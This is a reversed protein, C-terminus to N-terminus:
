STYSHVGNSPQTLECYRYFTIDIFTEDSYYNVGDSSNYNYIWVLHELNYIIYEILINLKQNYHVVRGSSYSYRDQGSSNTIICNHMSQMWWEHLSYFTKSSWVQTPSCRCNQQSNNFHCNFDIALLLCPWCLRTTKMRRMNILKAWGISQSCLNL